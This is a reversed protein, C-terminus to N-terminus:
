ERHGNKESSGPIEPARGWWLAFSEAAQYELLRQGDEYSAGRARAEQELFRHHPLVVYDLLHTSEAILGQIPVDLSPSEVSGAPTANVLLQASRPSDPERVELGFERALRGAAVPDRALIEGDLGLEAVVASVARAAGGAGLITVRDFAQKRRRQIEAIRRDFAPVDTNEGAIESGGLTLTNACGAREATASASTALGLAVVKLPHTINLGRFGLNALVPLCDALEQASGLELRLYLGRLGAARMWHHHIEPSRSERVPRGVVAYLPGPRDAGLFWALRDVPLQAAQVPVGPRSSGPSAFTLAM